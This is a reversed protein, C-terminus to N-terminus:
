LLALSTPWLGSLSALLAVGFPPPDGAPGACLHRPVSAGEFLAHGSSLAPCQAHLVVGPRVSLWRQKCLLTPQIPVIQM